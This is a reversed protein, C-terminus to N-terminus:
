NQSMATSTLVGPKMWASIVIGGLKKGQPTTGQSRYRVRGDLCILAGAIVVEAAAEAQKGTVECPVFPHYITGDPGEDGVKLTFTLTPHGQSPYSLKPENAVTGILFVNNLHMCRRETRRQRPGCTRLRRASSPRSRRASTLAQSEAGASSC